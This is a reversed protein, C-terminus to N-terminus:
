ESGNSENSRAAESRLLQDIRAGTKLGEDPVFELEPMFRLKLYEALRNKIFGTAGCLANQAAREQKEDGPVTFSVIARKLDKTVKVSTVTVRELRPDKMEMLVIEAIAEKVAEGVRLERYIM